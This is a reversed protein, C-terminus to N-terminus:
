ALVIIEGQESLLYTFHFRLYCYHFELAWVSKIEIHWFENHVNKEEEVLNWKCTSAIVRQKKQENKFFICLM